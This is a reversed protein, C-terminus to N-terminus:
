CWTRPMRSEFASVIPHDNIGMDSQVTHSMKHFNVDAALLMGDSIRANLAGFPEIYLDTFAFGNSTLLPRSHGDFRRSKLM